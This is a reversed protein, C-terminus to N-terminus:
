PKRVVKIIMGSNVFNGKTFESSQYLIETSNVRAAMQGGATNCGLLSAAKEEESANPGGDLTNAIDNFAISADQDGVLKALVMVTGATHVQWEACNDADKVKMTYFHPNDAKRGYLRLYRAAYQLDKIKIDQPTGGPSDYCIRRDPEPEPCYAGARLAALSLLFLTSRQFLM